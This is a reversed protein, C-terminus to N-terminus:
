LDLRRPKEIVADMFEEIKMRTDGLAREYMEYFRETDPHHGNVLLVAGKRESVSAADRLLSRSAADGPPLSYGSIIVQDAKKLLKRSEIWSPQYQEITGAKELIPPVIGSETLRDCFPCRIRPKPVYAKKLSLVLSKSEPFESCRHCLAWNASGHLKAIRIARGSQEVTKARADDAYYISGPSVYAFHIDSDHLIQEVLPDYNFTVIDLSKSHEVLASFFECYKQWLRTGKRLKISGCTSALHIILHHLIKKADWSTVGIEVPGGIAAARWVESFFDEENKERGDPYFERRREFLAAWLEKPAASKARFAPDFLESLLPGGAPKSFGAGLVLVRRQKM